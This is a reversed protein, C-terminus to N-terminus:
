SSPWPSTFSENSIQISDTGVSDSAALVSLILNHHIQPQLTANDFHRIYLSTVPPTICIQGYPPLENQPTRHHRQYQAVVSQHIHFPPIFASDHNVHLFNLQTFDAPLSIKIIYIGVAKTYLYRYM